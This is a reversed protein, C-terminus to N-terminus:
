EWNTWIGDHLAPNARFDGPPYYPPVLSDYYHQLRSVMMDVIDPKVDSLDSYENPDDKVNFLWVHKGEVQLPYIPVIGSDPPPIWSSNGPDGTLLKWDGVRIAARITTNFTGSQLTQNFYQRDGTQHRNASADHQHGSASVPVMAVDLPDINHLIETRPSPTGHSITEWVDYGDLPMGAVSGRAIGAVLTPFWDSVHILERNTTGRVSDSLLPSHVFGVGRMGGEWLSLKWGRLPWNNGGQHIQGGNDTSFILVTNEWLGLETMKQTINGIAEDMCAVMGSYLRRDLDQVDKYPEVYEEPVELPSHVAQFPLYLFFPKKPRTNDLIQLAREAFLHTSYQGGYRPASKEQNRFDYGKSIADCDFGPMMCSRRHTYYHQSGSYFGFFTDFGRRTPWCDKKYFGLHWKGVAHTAYGLEKLKDALTPDELPLCNPQVAHIVGHALGNHIQYRGSMLQSRTPTCIPQVYYNELKVGEAALKDLWPTKIASGHYGVDHFGFDDALIFIINPLTASTNSCDGAPALALGYVSALLWLKGLDLWRKLFRSRSGM